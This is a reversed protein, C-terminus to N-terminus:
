MLPLHVVPVGNKEALIVDVKWSQKVGLMSAIKKQAEYSTTSYVEIRKSKYFGVYGCITSTMATM